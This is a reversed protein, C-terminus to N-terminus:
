GQRVHSSASTGMDRALRQLIRVLIYPDILNKQVETLTKIVFLVFSISNDSNDEGSTQPATVSAIQKQILDEVKKFLMKVGQPTNAAESTDKKILRRMRDFSICSEATDKKPAVDPVKGSYDRPSEQVLRESIQSPM